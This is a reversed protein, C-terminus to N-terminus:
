ARREEVAEAAWRIEDLVARLRAVEAEAVAARAEAQAAMEVAAQSAGRERAADLQFAAEAPLGCYRCPNGDRFDIGVSSSHTGCAPCSRKLDSV